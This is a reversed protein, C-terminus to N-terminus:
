DSLTDRARGEHDSWLRRFARRVSESHNRMQMEAFHRDGSAIAEVIQRHQIVSTPNHEAPIQGFKLYLNRPFELIRSILEYLKDNGSARHIADHFEHSIELFRQHASPRAEVTADMEDCLDRLHQIMEPKIRLSALGASYGELFSLLDFIEEFQAETVEAVFARRNARITVLGQSALQRIAQRVPTRSVKFADALEEEKLQQGPKLKGSFIKARIREYVREVATTM